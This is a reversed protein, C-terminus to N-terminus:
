CHGKFGLRHSVEQAHFTHVEPVGSIKGRKVGNMGSRVVRFPHQRNPLGEQIRQANAEQIETLRKRWEPNPHQKVNAQTRQRWSLVCLLCLHEVM